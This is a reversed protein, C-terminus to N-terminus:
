NGVSSANRCFQQWTEPTAKSIIACQSATLMLMQILILSKKQLEGLEPYDLSTSSKKSVEVSLNQYNM